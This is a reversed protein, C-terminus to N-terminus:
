APPALRKRMMVHEIGAEEFPEGEETYGHALYFAAVYRQAHLTVEVAGDAVASQELFRLVRGGVGQRRLDARVAMRGVRAEGGALMAVRGTGVADGDSWALAQCATEDLEDSEMEPPVGQEEVFVQWRLAHLADLDRTSTARRVTVEPM